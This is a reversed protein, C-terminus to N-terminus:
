QTHQHTRQADRERMRIATSLWNRYGRKTDKHKKNGHQCTLWALYAKLEDLYYIPLKTSEVWEHIRLWYVPDQFSDPAQMSLLKAPIDTIAQPWTVASIPLLEEEKRKEERRKEEVERRKEEQETVKAGNEQGRDRRKMRSKAQREAGTSDEQYRTWNRWTVTFEGHNQISVKIHPLALCATVILTDKELGMEARLVANSESLRIVGGTGHRKTHAGLSAWAWRLPVPLRQLSDDGPASCWLKFWHSQDAM